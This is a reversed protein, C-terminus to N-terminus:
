ALLSRKNKIGTYGNKITPKPSAAYSGDGLKTGNQTIRKETARKPYYPTVNEVEDIDTGDGASVLLCSYETVIGTAKELSTFATKDLAVPSNVLMAIVCSKPQAM